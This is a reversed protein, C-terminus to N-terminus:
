LVGKLLLLMVRLLHPGVVCVFTEIPVITLLPLRTLVLFLLVPMPVLVNLLNLM